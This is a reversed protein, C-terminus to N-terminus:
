VAPIQAIPQALINLQSGWRYIHVRKVEKRLIKLRVNLFMYMLPSALRMRRWRFHILHEM